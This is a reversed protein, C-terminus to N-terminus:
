GAPASHNLPELRYTTDGRSSASPVMLPPSFCIRMAIAATAAAPKKTPVILAASFPSVDLGSFELSRQTLSTVQFPAMAEPGIGGQGALCELVQDIGQVGVFATLALMGAHISDGPSQTVPVDGIQRRVVM